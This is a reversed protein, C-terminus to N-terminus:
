KSSESEIRKYLEGSLRQAEAVQETTMKERLWDKGKPAKEDGQAGALNMWAYAKVYDELVGKGNQYMVGLNYQARAVGQEAAMRCWRVAEQYDEPVGEGKAYMVGLNFQAEAYGQEAEQRIEEVDLQTEALGAQFGALVVLAVLLVPLKGTLNNRNTMPRFRNYRSIEGPRAELDAVRPQYDPNVIEIEPRSKESVFNRDTKKQGQTSM